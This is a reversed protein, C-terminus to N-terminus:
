PEWTIFSFNSKRVLETLDELYKKDQQLEDSYIIEHTYFSPLPQKSLNIFVVDICM